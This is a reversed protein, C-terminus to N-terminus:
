EPSREPSFGDHPNLLPWLVTAAVDPCYHQTPTGRLEYFQLDLRKLTDTKWQERYQNKKEDLIGSFIIITAPSGM